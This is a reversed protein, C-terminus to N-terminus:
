RPRLVGVCCSDIFRLSRNENKYMNKTEIKWFAVYM